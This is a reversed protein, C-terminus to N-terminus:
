PLLKFSPHVMFPIILSFLQGPPCWAQSATKGAILYLLSGQIRAVVKGDLAPTPAARSQPSLQTLVLSHRTVYHGHTRLNPEPLPGSAPRVTM